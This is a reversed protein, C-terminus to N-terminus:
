KPKITLTSLIGAGGRKGSPLFILENLRGDRWGEFLNDYYYSGPNGSQGGPLIGYGRVVPGLEVVMRWSPGTRDSVADITNPAGDVSYPGIGFMPIGSPHGILCLRSNGWEWRSDMDGLNKRLGAVATSYARNIVDTATERRGTRKDDIWGSGPDRLILAATKQNDPWPLPIKGDAELDDSWIERYLEDWWATFVTAGISHRKYELDWGRLEQLVLKDGPIRTSDLEKLMQPLVESALESYSDAQLLRFSDVNIASMGSLRMNIRRARDNPEFLGAIIYPYSSDTLSQNASSVFKRPPDLVYPTRDAPIWGKWDNASRSGDLLVRVRDRSGIPFRGASTIAIQNDNDAYVFNQAPCCFYTLANRYDGYNRARNLLYFTKLENSIEHMTWRMALGDLPGPRDSLQDTSHREGDYVVPGHCTSLVTDYEKRGGRLTFEEVRREVERWEGDYLYEKKTADRFKVRYWDIVEASTNTVGWAIKSNYGIVVCPLGPISVGYVNEGPSQLQVQYWISPLTLLLHPDNALLPYGSATKSGNVAWNNSGIGEPWHKASVIAPLAAVNRGAGATREGPKFNWPTNVPIVPEPNASPSYLENFKGQGLIELANTMKFASEGGTLTEAMLKLVLLSYLPRWHQPKYGFLKFEVPYDAEGLGDIYANVGAAYGELATRTDPDGMVSDLARQAAYALGIRRKFMDRGLVGRGLVESLRGAATRVEMDMQWLRDRATVYGQAFFLDYDSESFIHPVANSDYQVFIDAHAGRLRMARDGSLQRREANQWVGVSPSLFGGLPPLMGIRLQLIAIFASLLFLSALM